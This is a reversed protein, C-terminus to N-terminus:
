KRAPLKPSPCNATASVESENSNRSGNTALTRAARVYEIQSFLLPFNGLFDGSRADVAEAFLGAPGALKEARDLITEAEKTRGMKAFVTALWFTCPLFAGEFEGLPIRQVQVGPTQLPDIPGDTNGSCFSREKM